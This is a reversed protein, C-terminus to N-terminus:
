AAPSRRRVRGRRALASGHPWVRVSPCTPCTGAGMRVWACGCPCAHVRSRAPVPVGVMGGHEETEARCASDRRRWRAPRGAWPCKKRQGLRFRQVVRPEGHSTNSPWRSVEGGALEAGVAAGNPSKVSCRVALGRFGLPSEQVCWGVHQPPRLHDSRDQAGPWERGLWMRARVAGRRLLGGLSRSRRAV